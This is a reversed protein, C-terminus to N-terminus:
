SYSFFIYVLFVFYSVCRPFGRRDEANRAKQKRFLPTIAPARADMQVTLRGQSLFGHALVHLLFLHRPRQHGQCQSMGQSLLKWTM